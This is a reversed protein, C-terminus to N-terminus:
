LARKSTITSNNYSLLKRGFLFVAISISIDIVAVNEHYPYCWYERKTKRLM